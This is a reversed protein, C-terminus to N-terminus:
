GDRVRTSCRPCRRRTRRRSERDLNADLLRRASGGVPDESPNRRRRSRSNRGPAALAAFRLEGGSGGIGRHRRVRRFSRRPDRRRRRRRCRGTGTQTTQRPSVSQCGPPSGRRRAGRRRRSSLCRAPVPVGGSTPVGVPVGGPPLAIKPAAAHAAGPPPPHAAVGDRPPPPKGTALHLHHRLGACEAMLTPRSRACSRTRAVSIAVSVSSSTWTSNRGRAPNNRPSATEFSGRANRITGRTPPTPTPPHEAGREVRSVRFWVRGSAERGVSARFRRVVRRRRVRRSIRPTGRRTSSTTVKTRRRSPRSSFTTTTRM